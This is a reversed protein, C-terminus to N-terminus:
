RRVESVVEFADKGVVSMTVASFVFPLLARLLVLGVVALRTV